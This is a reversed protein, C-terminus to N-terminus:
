GTNSAEASRPPTFLLKDIRNGDMDIIEVKWNNIEFADGEVPIRALRELALGAATHFDGEIGHLGLKETLEEISVRGDALWSGDPRRVVNEPIPEHEERLEGAIGELVDTLTVIGLFDGYEDIVFAIHVPVTRFMELLRLVPLTEPVYLPQLVHKEIQIGRGAVLDEVLHKKQVVGLPHGLDGSRVVVFRSFPCDSIERAVTEPDDELDIWYVDPRPAMVSAVSRDALALVGHIMEEEVEDIVGAETGEAIAFKVEEETVKDRRTEPIHLLRLTIATIKEHM